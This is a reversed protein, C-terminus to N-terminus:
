KLQYVPDLALQRLFDLQTPARAIINVPQAPLM